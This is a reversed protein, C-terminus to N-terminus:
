RLSLCHAHMLGLLVQPQLALKLKLLFTTVYLLTSCLPGLHKCFSCDFTLGLQLGKVGAVSLNGAVRQFNGFGEAVEVM